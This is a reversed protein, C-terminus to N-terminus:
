AAKKERRPLYIIEGHGTDATGLTRWLLYLDFGLTAHRAYFM